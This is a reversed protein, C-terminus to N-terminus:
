PPSTPSPPPKQGCGGGGCNLAMLGFGALIFISVFINRAKAVTTTRRRM